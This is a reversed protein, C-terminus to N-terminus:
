RDNITKILDQLNELDTEMMLVPYFHQCINLISLEHTAADVYLTTSWAFCWQKYYRLLIVKFHM